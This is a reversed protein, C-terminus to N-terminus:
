RIAYAVFQIGDRTQENLFSADDLAEERPKAYDPLNIRLVTGDPSVRISCLGYM